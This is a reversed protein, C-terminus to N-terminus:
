RERGTLPRNFLGYPEASILAEQLRERIEATPTDGTLIGCLKPVALSGEHVTAKGIRKLPYGRWTEMTALFLAPGLPEPEGMVARYWASWAAYTDAINVKRVPGRGYVLMCTHTFEKVIGDMAEGADGNIAMKAKRIDGSLQRWPTHGIDGDTLFQTM